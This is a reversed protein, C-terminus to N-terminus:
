PQVTIVDRDCLIHEPNTRCLLEACKRGFRGVINSYACHLTFMRGPHADSAVIHVLGAAILRDTFEATREGFDGIVSGSTVQILIGASVFRAITQIDGILSGTREPHAFVPRIDNQLLNHMSHEFDPPCQRLSVEMLVYRSLSLGCGGQRVFPLIDPQYYVEVGRHLTIGIEEELIARRLSRFRDEIRDLYATREANSENPPMHPTAACVTIGSDAAYRLMRLAETMTGPGDDIDPLIHTHIDTLM